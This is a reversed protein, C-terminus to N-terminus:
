NRKKREKKGSEGAPLARLAALALLWSAQADEEERRFKEADVPAERRWSLWKAWGRAIRRQRDLWEKRRLRERKEEEETERLREYFSKSGRAERARAFIRDDCERRWADWGRAAGRPFVPDPAGRPVVHTVTAGLIEAFSTVLSLVEGPLRELLQSSAFAKGPATCSQVACRSLGEAASAGPPRDEDFDAFDMPLEDPLHQDDFHAFGVPLRHPTQNSM